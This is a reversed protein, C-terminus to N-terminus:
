QGRPTERAASQKEGPRGRMHAEVFADMDRRKIRWGTRGGLNAGILRGSRLWERVTAPTVQLEASVQEVTLWETM